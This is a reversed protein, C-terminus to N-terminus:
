VKLSFNFFTMDRKPIATMGDGFNDYWLIIVRATYKGM